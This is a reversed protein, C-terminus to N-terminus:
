YYGPYFQHRIHAAQIRAPLKTGLQVHTLTSKLLVKRSVREWLTSLTLHDVLFYELLHPVICELHRKDHTSM